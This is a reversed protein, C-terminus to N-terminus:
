ELFLGVKVFMQITKDRVTTKRKIKYKVIVDGLGNWYHANTHPNVTHGRKDELPHSDAMKIRESHWLMFCAMWNKGAGQPPFKNGLQAHAIRNVHEKIRCHSLPFGCAGMKIVFSVILDEEITTLWHCHM